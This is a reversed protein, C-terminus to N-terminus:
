IPPAIPKEWGTAILGYATADPRETRRALGALIAAAADLPEISRGHGGSDGRGHSECSRDPIHGASWLATDSATPALGFSM